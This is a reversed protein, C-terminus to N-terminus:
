RTAPTRASTTRGGSRAPAPPTRAARPAPPAGPPTPRRSAWYFWYDFCGLGVLFFLPVALLSVRLVAEGDLLPDDGFLARLGITLAYSFAVGLTTYELARWWGPARLAIPM